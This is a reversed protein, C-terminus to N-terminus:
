ITRTPVSTGNEQFNYTIENKTINVNNKKDFHRNYLGEKLTYNLYVVDVSLIYNKIVPTKKNM